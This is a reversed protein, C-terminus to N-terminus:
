SSMARNRPFGVAHAGQADRLRIEVVLAVGHLFFPAQAHIILRVSLGVLNQLVKGVVIEGVFMGRDARHGIQVRCGNAVHRLKKFGVVGGM